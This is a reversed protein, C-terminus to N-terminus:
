FLQRPREERLATLAQRTITRVEDAALQELPSRRHTKAPDFVEAQGGKSYRKSEQEFRHPLEATPALDFWSETALLSAKKEQVLDQFELARWPLDDGASLFSDVVRCWTTAYFRVADASVDGVGALRRAASGNETDRGWTSPTAMNSAVVKEPERWLFLWRNNESKALSAVVIPVTWSTIKVVPERGAAVAAYCTYNLLSKLLAHFTQSEVRDAALAIRRAPVTVFDPEKLVMTTPRLTLLNALLTSGCRSTHAILRLPQDGRRDAFQEIFSALPVTRSSGPAAAGVTDSYWVEHFDRHALKGMSVLGTDTDIDTPLYGAEALDALEENKPM